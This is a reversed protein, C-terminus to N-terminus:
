VSSFISGAPDFAYDSRSEVLDARRVDVRDSDEFCLDPVRRRAVQECVSQPRSRLRASDPFIALRPDPFFPLCAGAVCAPWRIRWV